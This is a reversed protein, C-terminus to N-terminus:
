KPRMTFQAKSPDAPNRKGVSGYYVGNWECVKILRSRLYTGNGELQGAWMWLNANMEEIQARTKGAAFSRSMRKIQDFYVIKAKEFADDFIKYEVSDQAFADRARELKETVYGFGSSRLNHVSSATTWPEKSCMDEIYGSESLRNLEFGSRIQERYIERALEAASLYDAREPANEPLAKAIGEFWEPVAGFKIHKETQSLWAEQDCKQRITVESVASM